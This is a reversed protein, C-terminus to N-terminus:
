RRRRRHPKGDRLTVYCAFCRGGQLRAFWAPDRPSSARRRCGPEYCRGDLALDTRRRRELDLAILPSAKVEDDPVRVYGDAKFLVGVRQLKGAAVCWRLARWLRRECLSGWEDTVTAFLQVAARPHRGSAAVLADRIAFTEALTLRPQRPSGSDDAELSRATSRFM